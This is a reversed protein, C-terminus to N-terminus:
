RRGNAAAQAGSESLGLAGFAEVMRQQVAQADEGAPLGSGGMGRIQGSGYGAAEALYKLEVEIATAVAAKLADRDLEGAETVPPNQSLSELLRRRTVDPVTATALAQGVVERADRLLLAERLRANQGELATLRAQAEKLQEHMEMEQGEEHGNEGESLLRNESSVAAPPSRRAAEFMQVIQGGAGPETVFDVSRRDVISEIVPGRRGDVEGQVARGSARISVGIHPALEEVAARYQGFLKADAYLGPGALGAAEWRAGSILEGALANLDGEPRQTEEIVTPHNWYMKTGAGFVRPGDRELVDAPYYGSSGWGPAILRVPITGDRRVAKEVLAVFEGEGAWAEAVPTELDEDTEGDMAPAPPAKDLLGLVEGLASLAARLKTENARSLIRGPM